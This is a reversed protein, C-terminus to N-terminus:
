VTAIYSKFSEIATNENTSQPAIGCFLFFSVILKCPSIEESIEKLAYWNWRFYYLVCKRSLCSWPCYLYIVASIQHIKHFWTLQLLCFSDWPWFNELTSPATLPDSCLFWAQASVRFLADRHLLGLLWSFRSNWPWPQKELSLWVTIDVQLTRGFLMIFNWWLGECHIEWM